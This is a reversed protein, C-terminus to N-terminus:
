SSKQNDAVLRASRIVNDFLACVTMPGVGGKRPTITLDDRAEYVDAAVDGALVGEESAVGADVIVAGKPIMASTILGPNGVATIIVEAEKVMENLDSTDDAVQPEIGSNQLMRALPAGVLRGHGVILVKKQNLSVNYGALLWTIALPTAPDFYETSGLGDVDKQPAISKVVEDTLEPDSIPLQVIIGHTAEDKNHKQIVKTAEKSTTMEVLLEIGVDDAYRQKLSIYKLSVPNDDTLIIALKPLVHHAQRLARVQKAQREKVYSALDSGSLLRM